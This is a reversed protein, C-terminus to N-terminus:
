IVFAKSRLLACTACGRWLSPLPRIHMSFAMSSFRGDPKKIKLDYSLHAYNLLSPCNICTYFNLIYNLPSSSSWPSSLFLVFYHAKKFLYFFSLKAKQQILNSVMKINRWRMWLGKYKWVWWIVWLMQPRQWLFRKLDKRGEFKTFCDNLMVHEALSWTQHLFRPEVGILIWPIM